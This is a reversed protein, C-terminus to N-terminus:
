QQQQYTMHMYPLNSHTTSVDKNVFLVPKRNWIRHVKHIRAEQRSSETSVPVGLMHWMGHVTSWRHIMVGHRRWRAAIFPAQQSPHLITPLHKKDQWSIRFQQEHPDHIFPVSPTSVILCGNAGHSHFHCYAHICVALFLCTFGDGVADFGDDDGGLLANSGQGDNAVKSWILGSVMKRQTTTLGHDHKSSISAAAYGYWWTYTIWHWYNPTMRQLENLVSWDDMGMRQMNYLRAYMCGYLHVMKEDKRTENTDRRATLTFTATSIGLHISVYLAMSDRQKLGNVCKGTGRM